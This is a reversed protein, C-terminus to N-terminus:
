RLYLMKNSEVVMGGAAQVKLEYFYLGSAAPQGNVMTGNWRISHEGAQQFEEIIMDVIQGRVNYVTLRVDAASALEYRIMTASNFPNPYNTLEDIVFENAIFDSKVGAPNLFLVSLGQDTAFWVSGDVDVAINLINNSALGDDTTYNIFADDCLCSAGGTTGFWINGSSDEAIAQVFNNVLGESEVFVRWKMKSDEGEHRYAGMETGFWQVGDRDIYIAHFTNSLIPSWPQTIDSAATVVDIGNFALRAVGGDRTGNYVVGDPGAALSLVEKSELLDNATAQAWASGTFLSVGKDTGFWKVHGTDITAAYVTNSLIDRNDVQYPTAFTVADISSVSIVQVGSDSSVWIEPNFDSEEFIIDSISNSLLKNETKYTRWDTGNYSAIGNTTGFWKVGSKDILISNVTDGPLESNTSTMYQWSQSFLIRASIIIVLILVLIRIKYMKM